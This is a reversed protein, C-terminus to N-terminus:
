RSCRAMGSPRMDRTAARPTTFRDRMIDLFLEYSAHRVALEDLGQMTLASVMARRAQDHNTAHRDFRGVLLVDKNAARAMRVPAVDLGIRRGLSM